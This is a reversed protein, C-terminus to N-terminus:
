DRGCSAVLADFTESDVAHEGKRPDGHEATLYNAVAHAVKESFVSQPHGILPRVIGGTASDFIAFGESRQSDPEQVEVIYWGM